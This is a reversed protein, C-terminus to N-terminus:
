EQGENPRLVDYTGNEAAAAAQWLVEADLDVLQHTRSARSILKVKMDFLWGDASASAESTYTRTM